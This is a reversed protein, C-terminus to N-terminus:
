KCAFFHFVVRLYWKRGVLSLSLCIQYWSIFVHYQLVPHKQYFRWWSYNWCCSFSFICMYKSLAVKNRCVIACFVYPSFLIYIPINVWYQKNYCFTLCICFTWSMERAFIRPFSASKEGHILHAESHCWEKKRAWDEWSSGCGLSCKKRM